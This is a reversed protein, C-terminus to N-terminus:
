GQPDEVKAALLHTSRSAPAPNERRRAISDATPATPREGVILPPIHWGAALRHHRFCRQIHYEAM